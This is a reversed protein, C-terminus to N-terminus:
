NQPCNKALTVSDSGAAPGEFLSTTSVSTGRAPLAAFWLVAAALSVSRFIHGFATPPSHM